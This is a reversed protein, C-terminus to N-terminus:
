LLDDQPWNQIRHALFEEPKPHMCEDNYHKHIMFEDRIVPYSEVASAALAWLRLTAPSQM